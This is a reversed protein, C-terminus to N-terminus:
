SSCCSRFVTNRCFAMSRSWGFMENIGMPSTRLDKIHNANYKKSRRFQAIVQSITISSKTIEIEEKGMLQWFFAYIAFAGGITWFTFWVLMFLIPAGNFGKGFLGSVITGGVM